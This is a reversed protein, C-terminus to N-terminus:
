EAYGRLKLIEKFNQVIGTNDCCFSQDSLKYQNHISILGRVNCDTIFRSVNLLESDPLKGYDWTVSMPLENNFAEVEGTDSEGYVGPTHEHCNDESLLIHMRDTVIRWWKVKGELCKLM